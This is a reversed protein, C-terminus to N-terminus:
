RILIDAAVAQQGRITVPLTPWKGTATILEVAEATVIATDEIKTGTISPNWAFAQPAGAREESAPHAVWERSKYGTAGGQHHRQEEGPFGERRYSSAAVAYLEAGTAGPRTADLLSAFVAATARTREAIAPDVPGQSVIRSLAAVLGQRQACVAVLVTKRWRATTPVPHRFKAIRDDGAVLLVIARAGIKGLADSARRAVEVEELDPELARCMEEIAAAAEGGLARYRTVEAPTLPVRARAVARDILTVGPLPWDGALRESDGAVRRALRCVTDPAKHEDTWPYEVPHVPFGDLEETALRPMEIANAIVHIRGDATALLTGAGLERSGDIRNTRGGTLWAFSAQTSLLVGAVGADHCLRALRYRKSDFEDLDPAIV